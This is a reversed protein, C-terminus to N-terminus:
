CLGQNALPAVLAAGSDIVSATKAFFRTLINTAGVTIGIVLVLFAISRMFGTMDGGFILMAGAAVIGIISISVAVPGSLSEMLKKLGDEYPLDAAGSALAVGPMALLLLLALMVLGFRAPMPSKVTFMTM